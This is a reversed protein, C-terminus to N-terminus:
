AAPGAWRAVFRGQADVDVEIGDTKALANVLGPVNTQVAAWLGPRRRLQPLVIARVDRELRTARAPRGATKVAPAQPAAPAPIAPPCVTGTAVSKRGRALREQLPRLAKRAQEAALAAAVRAAQAAEREAQEAQEARMRAVRNESYEPHEPHAVRFADKVTIICKESANVVVRVNGRQRHEKWPDQKDPSILEPYEAADLIDQVHFGREQARQKVHWTLTWGRASALPDSLDAIAM